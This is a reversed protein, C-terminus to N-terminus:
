SSLVSTETVSFSTTVRSSSFTETGSQSNQHMCNTIIDLVPEDSHSSLTRQPATPQPVTSCAPLERTPNRSLDSFNKMSKIRRARLISEPQLLLSCWSYKSSLLLPRDTPSVSNGGEHTSQRSTRLIEGEEIV